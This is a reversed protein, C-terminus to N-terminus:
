KQFFDLTPAVNDFVDPLNDREFWGIEEIETHAKPTGSIIKSLYSFLIVDTSESFQFLYLYPQGLIEVKVDVEEEAERIASQHITEEDDVHGGPFKFKTGGKGRVLLVKGNKFIVCGAGISLLKQTGNKYTISQKKIEM